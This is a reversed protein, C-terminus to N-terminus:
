ARHTVADIFSELSGYSCPIDKANPIYSALKSSDTAMRKFGQRKFYDAPM